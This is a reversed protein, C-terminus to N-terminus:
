ADGMARVLVVPREEGNKLFPWWFIPFVSNPTNGNERSYLCEAKGYGFEPLDRNNYSRSLISELESMLSLKENMIRDPYHDSIGKKLTILSTINIEENKINKIGQETAVIVKVYIKIDNIKQQSFVRQLEKVRSIVTKGSGVFEDILVINKLDNNAKYAKYANGFTNVQKYKRWKKKEFFQKMDYLLYQSSDPTSDAAMAVVQTSEESISQESTIEEVLHQVLEAYKDMSVYHFRTILDLLLERKEKSDCENWLLNELEPYREAIWPQKQSLEFILRFQERNIPEM